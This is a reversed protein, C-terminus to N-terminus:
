EGMQEMARRMWREREALFRRRHYNNETFYDMIRSQRLPPPPPQPFDEKAEEEKEPEEAARAVNELVQSRLVMCRDMHEPIDAQNWFQSAMMYASSIYQFDSELKHVFKQRREANREYELAQRTLDCWSSMMMMPIKIFSVLIKQVYYYFLTHSTAWVCKRGLVCRKGTKDYVIPSGYALQAGIM